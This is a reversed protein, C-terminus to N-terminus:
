TVFGAEHARLARAACWEVLLLRHVRALEHLLPIVDDPVGQVCLATVAGDASTGYVLADALPLAFGGRVVGVGRIALARREAGLAEVVRALPLKVGALPAPIRARRHLTAYGQQGHAAAKIARVAVLEADVAERQDAAVFEVQRWDDEHIAVADSADAGAEIEPDGGDITPLSFRVTRPDVQDVRALLLRVRGAAAVLDRSAPDAGVVHYQSDGVTLYTEVGEFREPLSDLPAEDSLILAGSAADILDLHVNM